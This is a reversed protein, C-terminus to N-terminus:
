IGNEDNVVTILGSDLQVLRTELSLQQPHRGARENAPRARGICALREARNGGGEAAIWFDLAACVEDRWDPLVM